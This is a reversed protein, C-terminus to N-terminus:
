RTKGKEETKRIHDEILMHAATKRTNYYLRAGAGEYRWRKVYKDGYRLRGSMKYVHEKEQYVTGYTEGDIVVSYAKFGEGHIWIPMETPVFEARKLWEDAMRSVKLIDDWFGM